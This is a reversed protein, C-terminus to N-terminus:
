WELPFDLVTAKFVHLVGRLPFVSSWADTRSDYVLVSPFTNAKIGGLSYLSGRLNVMSDESSFIFFFM